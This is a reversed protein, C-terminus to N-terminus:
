DVQPRVGLLDDLVMQDTVVLDKLPPLYKEDMWEAIETAPAIMLDEEKSANMIHEAINLVSRHPVYFAPDYDDTKVVDDLHIRSDGILELVERYAFQNGRAWDDLLPALPFADLSEKCIVDHVRGTFIKLAFQFRVHKSTTDM